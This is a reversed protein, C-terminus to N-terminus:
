QLLTKLMLACFAYVLTSSLENVFSSKLAGFGSWSLEALIKYQFVNRFIPVYKLVENHRVIFLDYSERTLTHIGSSIQIELRPEFSSPITTLDM